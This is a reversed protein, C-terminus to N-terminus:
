LGGNARDVAMSYLLCYEANSIEEDSAMREVIQNLESFSGAKEIEKIWKDM